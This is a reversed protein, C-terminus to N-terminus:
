VGCYGSECAFLPLQQRYRQRERSAARELDAEALPISERWIYLQDADSGAIALLPNERNAEDFAIADAWEGPAQDRIEIWESARRYPCCVCASKPPVPLDHSQLWYTCDQRTYGLGFFPFRHEIYKVRSKKARTWEDLTIGLWLEIAGPSPHPAKSRHYGLVERLHRKIPRIKFERTCQRNLPGGTDTWFPIHVHEAAGLQRIDGYQVVAVTLGHDQLWTTYWERIQYTAQREWATDATVVLDLRDLEGLASM